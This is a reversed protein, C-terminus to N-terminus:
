TVSDRENGCFVVRMKVANCNVMEQMNTHFKFDQTENQQCAFVKYSLTSKVLFHNNSFVIAINALQVDAPISM